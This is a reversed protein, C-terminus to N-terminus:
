NAFTVVHRGTQVTHYKALLCRDFSEINTKIVFEKVSIERLMNEVILM